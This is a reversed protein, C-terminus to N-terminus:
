GGRRRRNRKSGHGSPGFGALRKLGQTSHTVKKTFDNPVRQPIWVGMTEPIEPGGPRQAEGRLAPFM